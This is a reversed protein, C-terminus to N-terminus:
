TLAMSDESLVLKKWVPASPAGRGASAKLSSGFFSSPSARVAATEPLDEDIARLDLANM